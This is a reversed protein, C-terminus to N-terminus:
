NIKKKKESNICASCVGDVEKLGPRCGLPFSCKSCYKPKQINKGNNTM